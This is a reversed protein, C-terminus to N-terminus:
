GPCGACQMPTEGHAIKPATESIKEIATTKVSFELGVHLKVALHGGEGAAAVEAVGQAHTFLRAFGPAPRPKIAEGLVQAVADADEDARGAEGQHGHENEGDAYANINRRETKEIHDSELRQWHAIGRTDDPKLTAREVLVGALHRVWGEKEILKM